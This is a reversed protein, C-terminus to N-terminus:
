LRQNLTNLLKRRKFLLHWRRGGVQYYLMASRIGTLLLTRIRPAASPQQLYGVDGIVQIRRRFTSITEEYLAGCAAFVNDHLLGFHDVKTQIIPLRESITQVMAPNSKLQRELLILSLAYRIIERSLKSQQGLFASLKYYGEILREDNGDYVALATPPNIVLLSKILCEIVPEDFAGTQAFKDVQQAVTFVAGLALVQEQEPNM